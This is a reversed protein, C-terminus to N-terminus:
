VLEEDIDETYGLGTCQPCAGYPNNFSFLRPTVEGLTWGCYPCAYNTSFLKQENSEVNTVIAIGDALNLSTEISEALRSEIDQKIVM